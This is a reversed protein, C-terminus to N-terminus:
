EHSKEEKPRHAQPMYTGIITTELTGKLRIVILKDTIPIIDDVNKVIDNNIVIGVGYTWNTITKKEGSFYWTYEGRIERSNTDIATEQLVLVHIGKRKMWAEVEERKGIRKMGHVNITAIRYRNGYKMKEKSEQAKAKRRNTKRDKPNANM